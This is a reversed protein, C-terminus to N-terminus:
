KYPPSKLIFFFCSKTNMIAPLRAAPIDGTVIANASASVWVTVISSVTATAASDSSPSAVASGTCSIESVAASVGTSSGACAASVGVVSGVWAAASVGAASGVWAAASVGAASGVWAASATTSSPKLLPSVASNVRSSSSLAVGVGSAM